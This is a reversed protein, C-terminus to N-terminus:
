GGAIRRAEVEYRIAAYADPHSRGRLRQCLYDGVYRAAFRIRGVEMWQRVHVLEHVLLRALVEPKAKDLGPRVYITGGITMAAVPGRWLLLMWRPAVRVRIRDLDRVGCMAALASRDVLGARHLWPGAAM